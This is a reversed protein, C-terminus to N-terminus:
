RLFLSLWQNYIDNLICPTVRSADNLKYLAFLYM